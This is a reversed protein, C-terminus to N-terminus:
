KKIGKEQFRYLIIAQLPTLDDFTLTRDELEVTLSVNGLYPLWQLKRSPKLTTYKKSYIDAYRYYLFYYINVFFTIYIIL